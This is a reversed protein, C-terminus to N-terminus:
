MSQMAEHLRPLSELISGACGRRFLCPGESSGQGIGLILCLGRLLQNYGVAVALGPPLLPGEQESSSMVMGKGHDLSTQSGRPHYATEQLSSSSFLHGMFVSGPAATLERRQGRSSLMSTPVGVGASGYMPFDLSRCEVPGWEPERQLRHFGSSM